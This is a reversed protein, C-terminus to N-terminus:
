GIENATKHWVLTVGGGLEVNTRRARRGIHLASGGRILGRSGVRETQYCNPLLKRQKYRNQRNTRGNVAKSDIVPQGSVEM